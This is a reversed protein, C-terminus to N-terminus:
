GKNLAFMPFYIQGQICHEPLALNSFRTENGKKDIPMVRFYCYKEQADAILSKTEFETKEKSELLMLKDPDEGGYVLYHGIDTAGNWSYYLSTVGPTENRAMLLPTTAPDGNWDFRFARYSNRVRIPNENPVFSLEFAVNGDSAVETLTPYMSGWGIMTNNNALRQANGMAPSMSSGKYEWVLTAIKSNEDLKYEVARSYTSEPGSRNDFITINGNPLRRIDHQDFFPEPDNIFDFQNQKGGLRWIIQGSQRDIKTIEDLARSSILLNGDYDLEIANGHVYDVTSQTLDAMSDTIPIHDWSRWQFVVNGDVDLEQIVLGIVTANPDGGPIIKSMDVPQPDYILLLAHDNPLIQLDHADTRYGNGARYTKVINYSADLAVFGIGWVGYTLLGNPQKKFDLVPLGPRMHRYFVPEGQNDLILLYPQSSSFEQNSWDVTFNSLFIYGDETGKAPVSISMAPFDPPVTVYSKTATENFFPKDKASIAQTTNGAVPFSTSVAEEIKKPSITFNFTDVFFRTDSPSLLGPSLKVNVTEAPLFPDDPDFIVSRRDKALIVTGEHTGSRSGTVLFPHDTLSSEKVDEPFRFMIATETQVLTADPLPSSYIPAM